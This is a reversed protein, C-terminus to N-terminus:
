RKKLTCFDINTRANQRILNNNDETERKREKGKTKEKREKNACVFNHTTTVEGFSVRKKSAYFFRM